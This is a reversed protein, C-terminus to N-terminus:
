ATDAAPQPRPLLGAGEVITEIAAEWEIAMVHVGAVGEIERIEHIQEICIKMGEARWADRLAGKDDVDVGKVADDMRKIFPEPVEIGPVKDNLFRAMPTSKLPGVGALFSIKEHLGMDVIKKMYEKFLTMDFIMQTQVFDAGAAVKKALRLPRVDIPACVPSAATGIFLRPGGGKIEDGSQFKNEDRMDKLMRVLQMSDVDHVDRATPHNGFSLHDGSLCLVNRIGHVHGGLLDSQIALRNRDRCTMQVVPELGEQVMIMGTGISSLRVIGTQNDTVNAADVYGKLLGIKKRVLGTNMGKPPGLEATVAFHGEALVRELNSGSKLEDTTSAARKANGDRKIALQQKM